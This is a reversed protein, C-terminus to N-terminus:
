LIGEKVSPLISSIIHNQNPFTVYFTIKQVWVLSIVYGVFSGDTTGPCPNDTPNRTGQHVGLPLSPSSGRSPSPPQLAELRWETEPVQRAILASVATLLHHPLSLIRLPPTRGSM